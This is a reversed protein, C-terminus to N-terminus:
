HDAAAEAVPGNGGNVHLATRRANFANMPLNCSCFPIKKNHRGGARWANLHRRKQRKEFNGVLTIGCGQKDRANSITRFPMDIMKARYAAHRPHIGTETVTLTHRVERRRYTAM